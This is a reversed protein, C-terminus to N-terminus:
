RFQERLAVLLASVIMAGPIGKVGGKSQLYDVVDSHNFFGAMNLPTFGSQGKANIDAKNAVLFKAVDLRGNWSACHLPTLGYIMKAEIDAKHQILFKVIDLHGEMSATHLPTSDCKNKAHIDAKNAVLFKAVNLQSNASALHLPTWGLTDKAHIDAKNEVLFKVVNLHGNRSAYHLPTWSDKEKVEIGGGKGILEKVVNVRGLGAAWHLSSASGDLGDTDINMKECLERAIDFHGNLIAVDLATFGDKNKKDVEAGDELLRKVEDMNGEKSAVHLVTLGFEDKMFRVASTWGKSSADRLFRSMDVGLGGIAELLPPIVVSADQQHAWEYASEYNVETLGSISSCEICRDKEWRGEVTWGSHHAFSGGGDRCDDMWDGAYENGASDLQRGLGDRKGKVWEGDYANCDSVTSLTGDGHWLGDEWEGEYVTHDVYDMRGQGTPIYMRRGTSTNKEIRCKGTYNGVNGNGDKVTREVVDVVKAPETTDTKEVTQSNPTSRTDRQTRAFMTSSGVPRDDTSETSRDQHASAVGAVTQAVQGEGDIDVRRDVVNRQCREMISDPITNMNGHPWLGKLDSDNLFQPRELSSIM